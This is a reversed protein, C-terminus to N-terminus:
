KAFEIDISLTGGLGQAIKQLTSIRVDTEAREIRSIHPRRLDTKQALEEQTLHAKLRAEKILEGIMFANAKRSFETRSETGLVGYKADLHENITKPKEKKM